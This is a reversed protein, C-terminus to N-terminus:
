ETLVAKIGTIYLEADTNAGFTLMAQGTVEDKNDKVLLDVKVDKWNESLEIEEGPLAAMFKKEANFIQLAFWATGKGKVRATVTVIQDAKAAFRGSYAWGFGFKATINSFHAINKEEDKLMKFEPAPKYGQWANLYWGKPFGNEQINDFTGNVNLEAGYVSLTMMCIFSFFTMIRVM